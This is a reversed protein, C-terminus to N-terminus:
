LCYVWVLYGGIVIGAMLGAIFAKYTLIYRCNRHIEELIDRDSKEKM